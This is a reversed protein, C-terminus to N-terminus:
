KFTFNKDQTKYAAEIKELATLFGNLKKVLEAQTSKLSNLYRNLNNLTQTGSIAATISKKYGAYSLADGCAKDVASQYTQLAKKMQPIGKQNIGRTTDYANTTAM